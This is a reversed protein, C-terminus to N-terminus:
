VRVTAQWCIPECGPGNPQGREFEATADVDVTLGDTGALTLSVEHAGGYDEGQLRV